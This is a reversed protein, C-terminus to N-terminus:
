DGEMYRRIAESYEADSMTTLGEPRNDDDFPRQKAGHSSTEMVLRRDFGFPLRIPFCWLHRQNAGDVLRQEAPYLEVAEWHPGVLENKVRQLDRWDGFAERDNRSISLHVIKSAEPDGSDVSEMRTVNYRSNRFRARRGVREIEVFPTWRPPQKRLHQIYRRCEQLALESEAVLKALAEARQREGTLEAAIRELKRTRSKTAM